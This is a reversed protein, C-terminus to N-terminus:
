CCAKRLKRGPIGLSVSFFIAVCFFVVCVQMCVCLITYEPIVFMAAFDFLPKIPFELSVGFNFFFFPKRLSIVHFTIFRGDAAQFM